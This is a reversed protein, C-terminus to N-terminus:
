HTSNSREIQQIQLDQAQRAQLQQVQSQLQQARARLDSGAAGEMLTDGSRHGDSTRMSWDDHAAQDATNAQQNLSAIQAQLQAIQQSGAAIQADVSTVTAAVPAPAAQTIVVRQSAALADNQNQAATLQQDLAAQQSAKARAAFVPDFNFVKQLDPPLVALDVTAAGNDDMIAVCNPYMGIVEVGTYVQGDTTHWEKPYKPNVPAVWQTPVPTPTVTVLSVTLVTPQVPKPTEPPSDATPTADSKSTVTFGNATWAFDYHQQFEYAGFTLGLILICLFLNKM